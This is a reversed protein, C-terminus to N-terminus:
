QEFLGCNWATVAHAEEPYPATHKRCTNCEAYVWVEFFDPDVTDYIPASEIWPSTNGCPCPHLATGKADSM